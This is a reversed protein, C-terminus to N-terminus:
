KSSRRTPRQPEPPPERNLALLFGSYSFIRNRPRGSDILARQKAEYEVGADGIMRHTKSLPPMATGELRSIRSLINGKTM